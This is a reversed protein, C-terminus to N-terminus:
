GEDKFTIKMESVDGATLDIEKKIKGFVEHWFELTYKGSPLNKIEFGGNGNTVSFFPHEVIAIYAGMWPHVSCKTKLLIEPKDFRLSHRQGKKPMGVNFRRNNKTVSKVNHFIPDSNIFVVEQGVRVGTVRPVYICGKQDVEVPNQPVSRDINKGELGKIVRVLVNKLHGNDVMVENSFVPGEHQRSCAKPLQLKKGQPVNGEFFVKGRVSFVGQSDDTVAPEITEKPSGTTEKVKNETLKEPKTIKEKPGHDHHHNMVAANGDYSDDSTKTYHITGAILFIGFLLIQFARMPTALRTVFYERICAGALTIFILVLWNNEHGYTAPFHNSIMIFIVPLTFYTNHTSRNKANKGWDQNVPKGEKSAEVMKLQRPIIRMFVNGAMWTGLMAGVHIYAARGSIQNCLFYTVGVFWLVTLAHGFKPNNKTLETEWLQDYFFWSAFVSGLAIALGQYFNINSITEDLLYTGNGAYYVLALLIMGSMWTWYAEWKFWHLTRPVKTPGMMLKEVHYFGGGHVMWAEGIHGDRASLENKEFSRDLWMFFVSTGIWSVATVIHLWRFILLSWDYLDQDM